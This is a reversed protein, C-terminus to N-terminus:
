RLRPARVEVGQMVVMAHTVRGGADAFFTMEAPQSGVRFRSGAVPVLEERPRGAHEAFLRDGTRVVAVEGSPLSYVGVLRDLSAVTAPVPIAPGESGGPADARLAGPDSGMRRFDAPVTFLAEEHTAEAISTAEAIFDTAPMGPALSLSLRAALVPKGLASLQERLPRLMASMSTGLSSAGTERVGKMDIGYVRDITRDMREQKKGGEAEEVLLLPLMAAMAAPAPQDGEGVWVEGEARLSPRADPAAPMRTELASTAAYRRTPRGAVTKTGGEPRLTGSAKEQPLVMGPPM